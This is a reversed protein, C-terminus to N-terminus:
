FTIGARSALSYSHRNYFLKNFRQVNIHCIFWAINQSYSVHWRTITKLKTFSHFLPYIVDYVFRNINGFRDLSYLNTHKHLIFMLQRDSYVHPLLLLSLNKPKMCFCGQCVQTKFTEEGAQTGSQFSHAKQLHPNPLM